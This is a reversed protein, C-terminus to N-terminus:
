TGPAASKTCQGRYILVADNITAVEVYRGDADIKALTGNEPLSIETWIGSYSVHPQYSDCGKGDCRQYSRGPEWRVTVVPEGEKCGRAECADVRAPKCELATVGKWTQASVLQFSPMPPPSAEESRDCGGVMLISLVILCRM